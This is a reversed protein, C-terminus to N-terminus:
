AKRGSRLYQLIAAPFHSMESKHVVPLPLDMVMTERRPPLRDTEVQGMDVVLAVPVPGVARARLLGVGRAEIMGRIPDPCDAWLGEPTQTLHTKDDAVLEAGYAMLSLALGSKGSGSPGTILVAKGDVAVCSAHLIHDM